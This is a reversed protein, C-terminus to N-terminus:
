LNTNGVIKSILPRGQYLEIVLKEKSRASITQGQVTMSENVTASVMAKDAQIDVKLNTRSYQYKEAIAWGQKLMELYEAKSPTMVQRHGQINMNMVIEVDDRM